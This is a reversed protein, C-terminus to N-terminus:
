HYMSRKSNQKAFANLSRILFESNGLSRYIESRPDIKSQLHSTLRIYLFSVLSASHGIM